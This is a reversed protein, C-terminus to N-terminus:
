RKSARPKPLRKILYDNHFAGDYDVDDPGTPKNRIGKISPISTLINTRYLHWQRTKDEKVNLLCYRKRDQFSKYRRVHNFCKICFSPRKGSNLSRLNMSIIGADHCEICQNDRYVELWSRKDRSRSGRNAQYEMRLCEQKWVVESNFIVGLFYTSLTLLKLCDNGSNFSAIEELIETPLDTLSLAKRQRLSSSSSPTFPSSMVRVIFGGTM